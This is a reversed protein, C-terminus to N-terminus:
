YENINLAQWYYKFIKYTTNSYYAIHNIIKVTIRKFNNKLQILRMFDPPVYFKSLIKNDYIYKCRYVQYMSCTYYLIHSALVKNKDRECHPFNERGRPSFKAIGILEM